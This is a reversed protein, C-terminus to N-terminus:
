IYGGKVGGVGGFCELMVNVFEVLSMNALNLIIFNNNFTIEASRGGLLKDASTVLIIHSNLNESSTGLYAILYVGQHQCRTTLFPLKM